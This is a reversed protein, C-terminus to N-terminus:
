SHVITQDAFQLHTLAAIPLRRLLDATQERTLVTLPAPTPAHATRLLDVLALQALVGSPAIAARLTIQQRGLRTILAQVVTAAEADTCPGLDLLASADGFRQLHPTLQYCATLWAPWQDDGLHETRTPTPTPTLCRVWALHRSVEATSSSSPIVPFSSYEWTAAAYADRM